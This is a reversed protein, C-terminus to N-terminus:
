IRTVTRFTQSGSTSSVIVYSPARSVGDKVLEYSSSSPIYTMTGYNKVALTAKGLSTSTAKVILQRKSTSYTASTIKVIDKIVKVITTDQASAGAADKVTLIVTFTGTKSYTKNVTQGAGTTGDGFSWSYTYPGQGGTAGGSFTVSTKLFEIKDAGADAKLPAPVPTPTPTPSPIPTPTPTPSPTPAPMTNGLNLRKGSLTKGTLAATPDSSTLLKDKIQLHSLSNSIGWLYAAAGSVHPTAMSTGSMLRYGSPDCSGCAGKPVTSFISVGPAGIDVTAAGYNSFSALNDYKDTAAVSIINPLDYSAPYFYTADNNNAANGAAAIFLSGANNAASIADYLAQSYGGGGWSNNTIKFNMVTAYQIARIAGDITGAGSANLFKLAAVKGPYNVGAVGVGNNGVAAITGAVHTGHGHDDIPDPDNNVFDYGYIDDVFGNGDDDVGAQGVAEASNKWMNASLDEHNYDIGTDIVGTTVSSGYPTDWAEPADIDADTTGGSQGTNNLGWLNVFLPDNPLQSTHLIFNPEAYEIEPDSKLKQLLEPLKQEDTSAVYLKDLGKDKFAQIKEQRKQARDLERLIKRASRLQFKNVVEEEAPSVTKFKIILEGPVYEFSSPLNQPSQAFATGFSLASLSFILLFSLFKLCNKM